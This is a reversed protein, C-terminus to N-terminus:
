TPGWGWRRVMGLGLRALLPELRVRDPERLRLADPGVAAPADISVTALRRSLLAIERSAELKVAIGKAGRIPLAPVRELGELLADLSGFADLLAVATKAGIGKVGPINDVADGMLGLLDAIQEPTVGFKVKVEEPGFRREKAFDFLTVASSVLQALDKDPSVVVFRNGDGRFRHVLTAIFDDAEYKLDAFTTLGMAETLERCDDFQAELDAPPLDRQAKYAPYIENRFSTTLSEDFAVAIHTPKETELYRLLFSAYGHVANAPRGSTDVMTTPLSFYARFVFPSADILHFERM